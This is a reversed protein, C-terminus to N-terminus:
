RRAPTPACPRGGQVLAELHRAAAVAGGASTLSGRLRRATATYGPTALVTSVALTIHEARARDFRLRVGAGAAVVSQAVAHQDDRIPALILPVGAALSECVTNHGAHCIVASARRLLPVQPVRQFLLVKDSRLTGTPDVVLGQVEPIAALADVCESLFRTGSQVNATGLTALVLPRGDLGLWDLDVTSPAAAVSGVYRVSPTCPTGTLEPTTYALVLDPSFRLDGPTVDHRLCLDRELGRIWEAVKPLGRLPDALETPTSASTVWPIGLERAVLPGAFAQQDALIVDPGFQQCAARVGPAMADALPLLYRQWLFRLAAFGRLDAPRRGVDFPDSRGAPFVDAGTLFSTLPEPGCWAVEHGDLAAAVARLPTVHGTLPPVVILVRM